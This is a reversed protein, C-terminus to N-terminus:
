RERVHLEEFNAGMLDEVAFASRIANLRASDAGLATELRKSLEELVNRKWHELALNGVTKINKNGEDRLRVVHHRNLFNFLRDIDKVRPWFSDWQNDYYEPVLTTDPPASASIQSTYGALFDSIQKYLQTSHDERVNHDGTTCWNYAATYMDMHDPYSLSKSGERLITTVGSEFCSQWLQQINDGQDM